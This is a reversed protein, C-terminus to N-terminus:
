TAASIASAELAAGHRCLYIRPAFVCSDAGHRTGAAGGAIGLTRREVDFSRGEELFAIQSLM